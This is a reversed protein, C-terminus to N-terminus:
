NQSQSPQTLFLFLHTYISAIDSLHAVFIVNPAYILYIVWNWYNTNTGNTLRQGLSVNNEM